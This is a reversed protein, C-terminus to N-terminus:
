RRGPTQQSKDHAKRRQTEEDSGAALPVMVEARIENAQQTM